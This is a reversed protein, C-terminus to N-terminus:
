KTVKTHFNGNRIRITDPNGANLQVKILLTIDFTGIMETSTPDYSLVTVFSSSDSELVRYTGTAVGKDLIAYIAGVLSDNLQPETNVLPYKGYVFPVKSFTLSGKVAGSQDVSDIMVQLGNGHYTNIFALPNGTWATGNLTADATGWYPQPEAPTPDTSKECAALCFLLCGFILPYYRM